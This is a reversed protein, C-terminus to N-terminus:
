AHTEAFAIRGCPRRASQGDPRAPSRKRTTSTIASRDGQEGPERRPRSSISPVSARERMYRAAARSPDQREPRSPSTAARDESAPTVAGQDCAKEGVLDRSRSRVYEASGAPAASGEGRMRSADLRSPDHDIRNRGNQQEGTPATSNERVGLQEPRFIELEGGDTMRTACALMAAAAGRMIKMAPM